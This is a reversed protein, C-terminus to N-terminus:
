LQCIEFEFDAGDHVVGFVPCRVIKDREPRVYGVQLRLSILLTGIWLAFLLREMSNLTVIRTFDNADISLTFLFDLSHFYEDAIRAFLVETEVTLVLFGNNSVSM